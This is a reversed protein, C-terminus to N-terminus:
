PSGGQMTSGIQRRQASDAVPASGFRWASYQLLFRPNVGYRRLVERNTPIPIRELIVRRSITLALKSTYDRSGDYPRQGGGSIPHRGINAFILAANDRKVIPLADPLALSGSAGGTSYLPYRM